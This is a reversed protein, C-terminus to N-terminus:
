SCLVLDRGRVFPWIQLYLFSLWVCAVEGQRMNVIIMILTYGNKM